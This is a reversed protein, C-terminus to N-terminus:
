MKGILITTGKKKLVFRAINDLIPTVGHFTKYNQSPSTVRKGGGVIKAVVALHEVSITEVTKIEDEEPPKWVKEKWGATDTLKAILITWTHAPRNGFVGGGGDEGDRGGSSGPVGDWGPSKNAARSYLSSWCEQQVNKNHTAARKSTAAFSIELTKAKQHSLKHMANSVSKTSSTAQQSSGQWRFQSVNRKNNSKRSSKRLNLHERWGCYRNGPRKTIRIEPKCRFNWNTRTRM